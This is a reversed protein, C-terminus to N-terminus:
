PLELIHDYDECVMDCERTFGLANYLETADDGTQFFLTAGDAIREIEMAGFMHMYVRYREGCEYQYRRGPKSLDIPVM